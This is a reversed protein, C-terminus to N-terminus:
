QTKAVKGRINQNGVITDACRELGLLSLTRDSRTKAILKRVKIGRLGLGQLAALKEQPTLDSMQIVQQFLETQMMQISSLWVMMMMLGKTTHHCAHIAHLM